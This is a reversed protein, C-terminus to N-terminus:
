ERDGAHQGVSHGHCERLRSRLCFYLCSSDGALQMENSVVPVIKSNHMAPYFVRGNKEALGLGDLGLPKPLSKEDLEVVVRGVGFPEGAFADVRMRIQGLCEASLLGTSLLAVVLPLRIRIPRAIM